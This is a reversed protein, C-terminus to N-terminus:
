DLSTDMSTLIGGFPGARSHFQPRSSVRLLLLLLETSCLPSCRPVTAREWGMDQLDLGAAEGVWRRCWCSAEGGKGANCSPATMRGERPQSGLTDKVGGEGGQGQAVWPWDM